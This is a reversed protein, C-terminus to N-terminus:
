VYYYPLVIFKVVLTSALCSQLILWQNDCINVNSILCVHSAWTEIDILQLLSFKMNVIFYVQLWRFALRIVESQASAAMMEKM